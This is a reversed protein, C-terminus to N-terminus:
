SCFLLVALLLFLSGLAKSFRVIETSSNLFHITISSFPILLRSPWTCVADCIASCFVSTSIMISFTLYESFPLLIGIMQIVSTTFSSSLVCPTSSIIKCLTPSLKGLGTKLSSFSLIRLQIRLFFLCTPMDQYFLNGPKKRKQFFFFLVTM